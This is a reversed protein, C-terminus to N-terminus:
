NLAVESKTIFPAFSVMLHIEQLLANGAYKDSFEQPDLCLDCGKGCDSIPCSIAEYGIKKM